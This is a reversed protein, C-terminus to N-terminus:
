TTIRFVDGRRSFGSLSECANTRDYDLDLTDKLFQTSCCVQNPLDVAVCDWYDRGRVQKAKQISCLNGVGKQLNQKCKLLVKTKM